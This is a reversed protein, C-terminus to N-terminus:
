VLCCVKPGAFLHDYPLVARLRRCLLYINCEANRPHCHMSTGDADVRERRLLMDNQLSLRQEKHKLDVMMWVEHMQLLSYPTPPFRSFLRTNQQGHSTLASLCTGIQSMAGQLGPGLNTYTSLM